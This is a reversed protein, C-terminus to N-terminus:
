APALAEAPRLVLGTPLKPFFFTSKQPMKEGADAVDVMQQVRTANVLVAIQYAGSDVARLAEAALPEFGLAREVDAPTRGIGLYRHFLLEHLLSLDLQKLPEAMGAPLMGRLAVSSKPRVMLIVGPEVGYLAFTPEAAAARLRQMVPAIDANPPCAIREVMWDQDLGGMLGALAEGSLGRLLRHLPLVVLGPDAVATLAMLVFNHPEDGAGAGAERRENRYNLATEYRHHGDAIYLPQGALAQSIAATAAPDNIAWVQFSADRFDRVTLLPAGTAHPALLGAVAGDADNYVSYVPSVNTKAARLLHLRDVKAGPLTFEHPLVVKKDWEELRVQCYLEWRTHTEGELRFTHRSLYFSPTADLVMAQEALWQQLLARARTYRNDDDTDAPLMEGLEVRIINHPSQAHLARQEAPSIVDFPPAIVQNLTSQFAPGYRLGRFRRVDAV